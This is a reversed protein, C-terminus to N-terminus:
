PAPKGVIALAAGDPSATYFADDAFALGLPTALAPSDAADFRGFSAPELGAPLRLVVLADATAIGIAAGNGAFAVAQPVGSFGSGANYLTSSAPEIVLSDLLLLSASDKCAVALVTGDPSFALAQPYDLGSYGGSLRAQGKWTLASSGVDLIIVADSGAAAIALASGDHNIAIAKLVSLTGCPFADLSTRFALTWAEGSRSFAYVARDANSLAYLCSSDPSFCLGRVYGLTELGASGAVLEVPTGLMGNGDAPAVWIWGSESNAAALYDGAPAVAIQTAKRASGGIRISAASEPVLEGSLADARWLEAKSSTGDSGIGLVTGDASAALMAPRALVQSGPETASTVTAYLSHGARLAPEEVVFALEAAGASPGSFVCVDLWGLGPLGTTSIDVVSGEVLVSGLSSWRYTAGAPGSAQVRLPYGRVAARSLQAAGVAFPARADFVLGLGAPAAPIALSLNATTSLGCLVRVLDTSGSLVQAGDLLQTALTFYGAPLDTVLRGTTSVADEWARVPLGDADTLACHWKATAPAEPPVTYLVSLTGMGPQPSLTISVTAGSALAVRASATGSLIEVGGADLAHASFVWDGTALDLEVSGGAAELSSFGASGPGDGDLLVSLEALPPAPDFVLGRSGTWGDAVRITVTATMESGPPAACSAVLFWFVGAMGLWFALFHRLKNM